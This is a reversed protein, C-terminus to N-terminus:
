NTSLSVAVRVKLRAQEKLALPSFPPLVLVLVIQPSHPLPGSGDLSPTRNQLEQVGAVGSSRIKCSRIKDSERGILDFNM